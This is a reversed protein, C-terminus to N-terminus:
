MILNKSKTIKSPVDVFPERYTTHNLKRRGSGKNQSLVYKGEDSMDNILHYSGSGPVGTSSKNFRESSKPNWVKSGSSKFKSAAYKGM